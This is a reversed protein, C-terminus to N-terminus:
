PEIAWYFNEWGTSVEIKSGESIFNKPLQFYVSTSVTAGPVADISMSKSDEYTLLVTEFIKGQADAIKFFFTFPGPYGIEQTENKYKVNLVAYEDSEAKGANFKGEYAQPCIEGSVILDNDDPTARELENKAKCLKETIKTEFSTLSLKFGQYTITGDWGFPKTWTGKLPPAPTKSPTPLPNPSENKVKSGIKKGTGITYKIGLRKKLVNAVKEVKRTDPMVGDMSLVYNNTYFVFVKSGSPWVGFEIQVAALKKTGDAVDKATRTKPWLDILIEVGRFKCKGEEIVLEAPTKTYPSCTVGKAKFAALLDSMKTFNSKIPKAAVSAPTHATSAGFILIVSLIASLFRRM